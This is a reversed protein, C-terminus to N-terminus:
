GMGQRSFALGYAANSKGSAVTPPATTTAFAPVSKERLCEYFPPTAVQTFSPTQRGNFGGFFGRCELGEGGGPAPVPNRMACDRAPTQSEPLVRSSPL